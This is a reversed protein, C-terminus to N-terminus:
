YFVKQQEAGMRAGRSHSCWAPFSHMEGELAKEEAKRSRWPLKVLCPLPPPFGLPSIKPHRLLLLHPNTQPHLVLLWRGCQYIDQLLPHSKMLPDSSRSKRGVLGLRCFESIMLPPSSLAVHAGSRPWPQLYILLTSM